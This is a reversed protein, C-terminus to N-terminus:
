RGSSVNVGIVGRMATDEKHHGSNPLAVLAGDPGTVMTDPYSCPQPITLSLVNGNVFAALAKVIGWRVTANGAHHCQLAM